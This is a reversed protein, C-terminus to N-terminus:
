RKEKRLEIGYKSEWETSIWQTTREHELDTESSLAVRASSLHNRKSQFIGECYCTFGTIFLFVLHKVSMLNQLTLEKQPHHMFFLNGQSSSKWIAFATPTPLPSSLHFSYFSEAWDKKTQLSPWRSRSSGEKKTTHGFALCVQYWSHYLM